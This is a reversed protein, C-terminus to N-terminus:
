LGTDEYRIDFQGEYVNLEDDFDEDHHLRERKLQVKFRGIIRKKIMDLGIIELKNTPVDDLSYMASLSACIPCSPINVGSDFEELKGTLQPLKKFTFHLHEEKDGVGVVHYTDDDKNYFSSATTTMWDRGNKKVKFTSQSELEDKEKSCATSCIVLLVACLVFIGKM